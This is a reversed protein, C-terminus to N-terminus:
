GRRHRGVFIEFFFPMDFRMFFKSILPMDFCLHGLPTCAGSLHFLGPFSLTQNLDFPIRLSGSTEYWPGKVLVVWKAENKPSYPLGTVFQLWPSHASMSLRGRIGLKLTYIFCIEVLSIDLQYLFNLM